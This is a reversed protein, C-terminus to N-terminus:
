RGPVRGWCAARESTASIAAERAAYLAFQRLLSYKERKKYRNLSRGTGPRDHVFSHRDLMEEM